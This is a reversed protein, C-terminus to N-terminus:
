SSPGGATSTRRRAATRATAQAHIMVCDHTMCTVVPSQAADEQPLCAWLTGSSCLTVLM